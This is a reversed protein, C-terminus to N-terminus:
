KDLAIKYNKLKWGHYRNLALDLEKRPAKKKKKNFGHLVIMSDKHIIAYLIRINDKGLIRIEWLPTNTLKKIHPIVAELGYIHITQFIRFVKAKQRKELSEIFDFVPNENNQTLYYIVKTM